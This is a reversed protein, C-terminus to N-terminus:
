LAEDLGHKLLDVQVLLLLFKKKQDFYIETKRVTDLGAFPLVRKEIFENLLCLGMVLLLSGLPGVGGARPLQLKM